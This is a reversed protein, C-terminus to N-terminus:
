GPAFQVVHLDGDGQQRRGAVLRVDGITPHDVPVDLRGRGLLVDRYLGIMRIHLERAVITQSM